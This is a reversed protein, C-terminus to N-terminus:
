GKSTLELGEALGLFFERALRGLTPTRYGGEQVVLVPLGPGGLLRGNARFDEPRLTWSGTPDGRATDLGLAVVLVDPNFRQVHEMARLLASRYGAGDLTEPQPFNWNAGRGPGEGREDAFGSFYPFAFSPHGHISLTLVEGREYFIDQTGNGHHYDLDLIAVKAEKLLIETAAAANNLYCFGGFAKREAHHGPPRVLAYAARHGDLIAKAATMACDAGLRAAPFAHLSLPTFTDLCYYGARLPLERPPRTKNRLPFVYPYVVQREALRSCATKLYALMGPDHIRQLVRDPFHKTPLRRSLGTEEVGALLKPLRAPAEVYGRERVHHPAHGESVVLALSGAAKSKKAPAPTTEEIRGKAPQRLRVPDDRFSDLVAKVYDEPCRGRYKRELIARVVAKATKLSLPAGPRAPHYLLSPPCCLPDEPNLPLEYDTGAVVRAGEKEYFRIRRRNAPLLSKDRCHRPEDALSELFLGAGGLAASELQVRRYLAGGVGRGSRGESVAMYDLLCFGLDPFHLLWAFGLLGGRVEAVYLVGRYGFRLPDRLKEPIRRWEDEMAEPFRAQLLAQAKAVAEKDEPLVDDFVRRIRFM